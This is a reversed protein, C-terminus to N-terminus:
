DTKRDSDLPKVSEYRGGAARIVLACPPRYHASKSRLEFVRGDALHDKWPTGRM